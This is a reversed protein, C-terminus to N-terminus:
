DSFSIIIKKDEIRFTPENTKKALIKKEIKKEAREKIKKISLENMEKVETPTTITANLKKMTNAQIELDAHMDSQAKAQKDLEEKEKALKLKKANLADKKAVRALKADEIAKSEALMREEEAKKKLLEPDVEPKKKEKTKEVVVKKEEVVAPPNKLKNQIKLVAEYEPTGKKPVLFKGTQKAYEKLATTWSM